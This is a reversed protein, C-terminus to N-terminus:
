SPPSTGGAGSPRDEDSAEKREPVVPSSSAMGQEGDDDENTSGSAVAESSPPGDAVAAGRAVNEHFDKADKCGPPLFRPRSSHTSAEEEGIPRGEDGHRQKQDKRGYAAEEEQASERKHFKRGTLPCVVAMCPVVTSSPLGRMSPPASCPPAPTAISEKEGERYTPNSSDRTIPTSAECGEEEGVKGGCAEAEVAERRTGATCSSACARGCAFMAEGM